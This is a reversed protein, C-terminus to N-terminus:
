ESILFTDEFYKEFIPVYKKVQNSDKLKGDKVFQDEITGSDSIQEMGVITKTVTNIEPYNMTINSVKVTYQSKTVTIIANYYYDYMIYM